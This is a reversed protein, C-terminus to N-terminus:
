VCIEVTKNGEKKKKKFCYQSKFEPGRKSPLSEVVQAMDKARKQDLQKTKV